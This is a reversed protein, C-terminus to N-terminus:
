LRMADPIESLRRPESTFIRLRRASRYLEEAVRPLGLEGPRGADTLRDVGGARTLLPLNVQLMSTREPYDILVGGVPLDLEAALADEARMLREPDNWWWEPSDEPVQSAPLDLARKYLRRERIAAAIGTSDRAILLADMTGDTAAEIEALEIAGAGLAALVARKFMCTAARVAHHWYVNRYM